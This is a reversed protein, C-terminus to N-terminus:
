EEPLIELDTGGTSLNGSAVIRCRLGGNGRLWEHAGPGIAKDMWYCPSCEESGSFVIDGIRFRKGVLTNLDIGSIIVNRRMASRDVEPLDLHQELGAAIEESFFTIQGKFDEKYGFYRDGEIGKGAVCNVSSRGEVGHNNRDQGHQGRFDHGPSIWINKIDVRM